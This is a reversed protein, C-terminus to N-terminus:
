NVTNGNEDQGSNEPYLELYPVYRMGAFKGDVFRFTFTDYFKNEDDKYLSYTLEEWNANEDASTLIPEGFLNIFEEKTTTVQLTFQKAKFEGALDLQTLFIRKDLARKYYYFNIKKFHYVWTSDYVNEKIPNQVSDIETTQLDEFKKKVDAFDVLYRKSLIELVESLNERYVPNIYETKMEPKNNCSCVLAFLLPILFFFIPKKM